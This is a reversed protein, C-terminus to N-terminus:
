TLADAQAKLNMKKTKKSLAEVIMSYTNTFIDIFIDHETEGLGLIETPREMMDHRRISANEM